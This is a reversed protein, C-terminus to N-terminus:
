KKNSLSIYKMLSGKTKILMGELDRFKFKIIEM